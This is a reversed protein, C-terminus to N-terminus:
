STSSRNDLNKSMDDLVLKIVQSYLRKREPRSLIVNEQALANEYANQATMFFQESIGSTQVNQFIREKLNKYSGSDPQLDFPNEM